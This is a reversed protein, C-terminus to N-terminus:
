CCIQSLKQSVVQFRTSSSKADRHAISRIDDATLRCFELKQDVKRLESPNRRTIFDAYGHIFESTLASGAILNPESRFRKALIKIRREFLNPNDRYLELLKAAAKTGNATPRGKGRQVEIGHKACIEVVATQDPRGYGYCTWFRQNATVAKRLSNLLNFVTDPPLTTVICHMGKDQPHKLKYSKITHQGDAVHIDGGRLRCVLPFSSLDDEFQEVIRNVHALDLERQLEPDVRLKTFPFWQLKKRNATFARNM